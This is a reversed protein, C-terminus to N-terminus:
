VCGGCSLPAYERTCLFDVPGKPCSDKGGVLLSGLGLGGIVKRDDFPEADLNPSGFHADLQFPEEPISLPETDLNPSGFHSLKRRDLQFPEEPISPSTTTATVDTSFYFFSAPITM